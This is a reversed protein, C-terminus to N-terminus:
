GLGPGRACLALWRTLPGAGVHALCLLRRQGGGAPAAQLRRQGGRVEARPRLCAACDLADAAQDWHLGLLALVEAGGGRGAGGGSGGGIVDM